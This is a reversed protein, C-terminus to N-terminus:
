LATFFFTTTSKNGTTTRSRYLKLNGCSVARHIKMRLEEAKRPLDIEEGLFDVLQLLKDNEGIVVVGRADDGDCGWFPNLDSVIKLRERAINLSTEASEGRARQVPVGSPNTRITAHRHLPLPFRVSVVASIVAGKTTDVLISKRRRGSSSKNCPHCRACKM